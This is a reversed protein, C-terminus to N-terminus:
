KETMGRQGSESMIERIISGQGNGRQDNIMVGQSIMVETITAQAHSNCRQNKGRQVNRSQVKNM